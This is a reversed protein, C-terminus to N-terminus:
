YFGMNQLYRFLVSKLLIPSPLHKPTIKPYPIPILYPIFLYGWIKGGARVLLNDM